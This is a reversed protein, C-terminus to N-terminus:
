IREIATENKCISFVRVMGDLAGRSVRLSADNNRLAVRLILEKRHFIRV